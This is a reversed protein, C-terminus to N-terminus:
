KIPGKVQHYWRCDDPQATGPGSGRVMVRARLPRAFGRRVPLLRSGIADFPIAVFMHFEATHSTEDGLQYLNGTMNHIKFNGMHTIQM